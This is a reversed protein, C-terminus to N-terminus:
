APVNGPNFWYYAFSSTDHELFICHRQHSEFESGGQDRTLCKVVSDSSEEFEPINRFNVDQEGHSLLPKEEIYAICNM